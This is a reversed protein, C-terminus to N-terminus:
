AVDSGIITSYISVATGQRNTKIIRVTGDSAGPVEIPVPLIIPDTDGQRGTSFGVYVTALSLLPGTQVEYKYSASGSVTFGKLLFTTGAVTYDHNASGDSAVDVAEDFDHVENGSVVTNVNYTYLPTLETNTPIAVELDGAANITARRADNTSDVLVMLQKRDLTMRAAGIDGEDVSDPTTEDALYAATTVPDTGVAFASDDAKAVPATGNTTQVFIPNGVANVARDKSVLSPFQGDAM